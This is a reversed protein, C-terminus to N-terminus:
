ITFHKESIIKLQQSKSSPLTCVVATDKGLTKECRLVTQTVMVVKQAQKINIKRVMLYELLMVSKLNESFKYRHSDAPKLITARMVYM